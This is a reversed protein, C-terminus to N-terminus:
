TSLLSGSTFGSPKRPDPYTWTLQVEPTHLIDHEIAGLRFLDQTTRIEEPSFRLWCTVKANLAGWRVVRRPGLKFSERLAPFGYGPTLAAAIADLITTKGSANPGVLLSLDRVRGLPDTFDVVFPKGGGGLHRFNEIQVKALKM